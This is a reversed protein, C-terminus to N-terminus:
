LQKSIVEAVKKGQESKGLQNYHVNGPKLTWKEFNPKTFAYLDNIVISPYKAMVEMAAKNYKVSDGAIRGDAGEPVPTSSAFILKAKPFESILYKCIKDLNTQYETLSSVQKGNEKDLKGNALYKLDHLGVNFHIVDWTFNLGNELYPQFMAKKMKEMNPIFTNSAGGNRFTRFVNAKGQLEERVKLTYGISISDGYLFVNPLRKQPHVYAYPAEKIRYDCLKTWAERCVQENCRKKNGKAFAMPAVGMFLVSAGLGKIFKRRDM